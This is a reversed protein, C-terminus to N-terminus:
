YISKEPIDSTKSTMDRAKEFFGLEGKLSFLKYDCFKQQM